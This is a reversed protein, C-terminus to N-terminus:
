GCEPSVFRPGQVNRKLCFHGEKNKYRRRQYGQPCQGKRRGSKIPGRVRTADSVTVMCARGPGRAAGKGGRSRIARRKDGKPATSVVESGQPCRCVEGDPARYGRRGVKPSGSLNTVFTGTRQRRTMKKRRRPM